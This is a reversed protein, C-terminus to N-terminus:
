REKTFEMLGWRRPLHMNIAHQASWVWNDERTDPVKVYADGVVEHEWQVRSFNLKWVDGPVPPLAVHSHERFESWPIAFEISWGVDTDRPDNLTGDLHVAHRLAVANWDVHASGGERYPRDLMLDFLTGLANVEFEYYWLADRDPDIFIEFDNDRYIISDHETLTAVLHPEDLQAGVYLYDDDWLLKARTAHPPVPKRWGEIDVFDSTWPARDWAADDLVGDLEIVESTRPVRYVEPGLPASPSGGGFRAAHHQVLQRAIRAVRGDLNLEDLAAQPDGTRDLAVAVSAELHQVITERAHMASERELLTAKDWIRVTYDGSTSVLWDGNPSWALAFVYDEHGALRAVEEHHVTDWIRVYGDRGGSAIRTGDPSAAVALVDQGHGTLTAKRSGTAADWVGITDDASASLVRSSDSTFALSWIPEDHAHWQRVLEGTETAFLAISLQGRTVAVFRGDPSAAIGVGIGYSPFPDEPAFRAEVQGSTVDWLIAEGSTAISLARRGDPLPAIREVRRGAHGGFLFSDQLTLADVVRVESQDTEPTWVSAIIADGGRAYCASLVVEDATGYEAILASTQADRLKLAGARHEYGDWGGTVYQSGNPAIDLAYVYSAHDRLVNMSSLDTSWKRLRGSSDSCMLEGSRPVFTLESIWGAHVPLSTSVEERQVDFVVANGGTTGAALRAGDATWAMVTIPMRLGSLEKASDQADADLPVIHVEGNALGAAFVRDTPHPSIRTVDQVGFSLPDRVPEHMLADLFSITARQVIMLETGDASYASSFRWGQLEDILEDTVLDRVQVADHTHYTYRGHVSNIALGSHDHRPTLPLKRVLEGTELNWRELGRNLQLLLIERQDPTFFCRQQAGEVRLVERGSRREIVVADFDNETRSDRVFFLSGDPSYVLWPSGWDTPVPSGLSEDLRSVLHHWEWGRLHEPTGFLLEGALDIRGSNVADAAGNLNARYLQREIRGRAMRESQALSDARLAWRISVVAAIISVLFVILLATFAARNRRAFTQLQYLASPPRASITEGRLYARVDGCLEAVTQYRRSKEKELAKIAITEVDGRLARTNTSLRTPQQERIIRMVELFHAGEFDYPLRGTLLEYLVMGLSYVDSRADIAAPDAEVQEPSMYHLTGVLQGVSTQMTARAVDADTARAVGFDIIKARPTASRTDILINDPKLDRHIVGRQHGFQVADCVEAFLELKARIDLKATRAHATITQADYVFEMAFYPMEVEGVQYTGAQYVQAIGPHSLRALLDAEVHFRHLTEQGLMEPRMVKVAVTRSPHEQTAEYVTGMGGSAVVRVITFPGITRPVHVPQRSVPRRPLHGSGMGPATEANGDCPVSSDPEFGDM